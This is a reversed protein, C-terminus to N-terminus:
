AFPGSLNAVPRNFQRAHHFVPLSTLTVFKDQKSLPTAKEVDSCTQCAPKPRLAAVSGYRGTSLKMTLSLKGIMLSGIM